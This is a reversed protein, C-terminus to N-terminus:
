VSYFISTSQLRSFTISVINVRKVTLARKIVILIQKKFIKERNGFFLFGLDIFLNDNQAPLTNLYVNLIQTKFNYSLIM